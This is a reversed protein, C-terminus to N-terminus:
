LTSNILIGLYWSNNDLDYGVNPGIWTDKILPIVSGLNYEIPSLTFGPISGNFDTGIRLMRLIEEEESGYSMVSVGVSAAPQFEGTDFNVSGTIGLDLHPDWWDFHMPDEIAFYTISENVSIPYDVDEENGSSAIRTEIIVEPSQNVDFGIVTNTRVTLDYTGTQFEIEGSSSDENIDYYALPMGEETRFIFNRPIQDLNDVYVVVTHGEITGSTTTVVSPEIDLDDLRELVTSFETFVREISNQMESQSQLFHTESQVLGDTLIEFRRETIERNYTLSNNMAWLSVFPAALLVLAGVIIAVIVWKNITM